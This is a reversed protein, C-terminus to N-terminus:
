VSKWHLDVDHLKTTESLAAPTVELTPRSAIFNNTVMSYADSYLRSCIVARAGLPSVAGPSGDWYGRFSRAFLGVVDGASYRTGLRLLAAMALRFRDEIKLNTDRRVRLLHDGVYGFLPAVHVGQGTAECVNAEGLYIAAHHWRADEAVYGGRKQSAIIQRSVWPPKVSSVLLLDGPLWDDINPFYGFNRIYPPIPGSPQWSGIPKIQAPNPDLVIQAM